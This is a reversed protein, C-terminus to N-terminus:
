DDYDMESCDADCGIDGNAARETVPRRQQLLVEVRDQNSGNETVDRCALDEWSRGLSVNEFRAALQSVNFSPTVVRTPSAWPTAFGESAPRVNLWHNADVACLSDIAEHSVAKQLYSRPGPMGGPLGSYSASRRIRFDDAETFVEERAAKGVVPLREECMAPASSRGALSHNDCSSTIEM